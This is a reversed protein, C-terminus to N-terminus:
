KKEEPKKAGTDELIKGNPSVRVEVEKKDATELVVEYASLKEDKGKVETEEMIEKLASKPYRKKIAQSVAKPLGQAEIAKEYNLYIGNEKIDAECKRSEQQFEIDYVIDAGEKARSCKDIKAKPFKSLLADMVAKPIKDQPVAEEQASVKSTGIFLFLALTGLIVVSQRM